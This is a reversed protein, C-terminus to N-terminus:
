MDCPVVYCSMVCSVYMHLMNKVDICMVYIMLKGVSLRARINVGPEIRYSKPNGDHDVIIAVVYTVLGGASDLETPIGTSSSSNSTNNTNGNVPPPTQQAQQANSGTTTTQIIASDNYPRYCTHVFAECMLQMNRHPYELIIEVSRFCSIMLCVDYMM